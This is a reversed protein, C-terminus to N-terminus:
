CEVTTSYVSDVGISFYKYKVWLISRVIEM